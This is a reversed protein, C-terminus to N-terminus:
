IGMFGMGVGLGTFRQAVHGRWPVCKGGCYGPVGDGGWARYLTPGCTWAMAFMKGVM